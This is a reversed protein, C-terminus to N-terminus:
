STRVELHDEVKQVGQTERAIQIVQEKQTQSPVTGSLTVVGGHTEVAVASAVEPKSALRERVATTIAADGAAPAPAPAQAVPPAAVTLNDTVKKVGETGRALAVAQTKAAESDVTGSLTVVRKQTAVQVQGATIMRDSDMRSKVKTTLGADTEVACASALVMAAFVGLLASIRRKM